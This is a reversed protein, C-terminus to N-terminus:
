QQLQTPGHQHHEPTATEGSLPRVASSLLHHFNSDVPTRPYPQSNSDPDSPICLRHTTTHAAILHKRLLDLQNLALHFLRSDSALASDFELNGNSRWVTRLLRPASPRSTYTIRTSTSSRFCSRISTPRRLHLTPSYTFLLSASSLLSRYYPRPRCHLPSSLPYYILFSFFFFSIYIRSLVLPFILFYIIFSWFPVLVLFGFFPSPFNLRMVPYMVRTIVYDRYM